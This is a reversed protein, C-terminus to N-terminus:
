KSEKIAQQLNEIETILLQIFQTEDGSRLCNAWGKLYILLNNYDLEKACAVIRQLKNNQSHIKNNKETLEDCYENLDKYSSEFADARYKNEENEKELCKHSAILKPFVIKLAEVQRKQYGVVVKLLAEDQGCFSNGDKGNYCTEKITMKDKFDLVDLNRIIDRKIKEIKENM